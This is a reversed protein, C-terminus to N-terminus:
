WDADQDLEAERDLQALVLMNDANKEDREEDTTDLLSVAADEGLSDVVWRRIVDM